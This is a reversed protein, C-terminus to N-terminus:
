RKQALNGSLRKLKGVIMRMKIQCVYGASDLDEARFSTFCVASRNRKSERSSIYPAKLQVSRFGMRLRQSSLNISKSITQHRMATAKTFKQPIFCVASLNETSLTVYVLPIIRGPIPEISWLRKYLVCLPLYINYTIPHIASRSQKGGATRNSRTISGRKSTKM